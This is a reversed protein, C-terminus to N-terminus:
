ITPFVEPIKASGGRPTRVSPISTACCRWRGAITPAACTPSYEEVVATSSGYPNATRGRPMTEVYPVPADPGYVTASSSFVLRYVGAAAMAQCLVLSGHVNTDYYALPQEVSEGVAKLGAFHIVAEINHEDFLRDLLARDHVEGEIYHVGKDTIAEVRYLAERAGNVLNDLVVVDYGEQLLEVVTHSGIYGAGGTVLISM